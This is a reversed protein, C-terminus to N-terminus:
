FALFGIGLRFNVAQNFFVRTTASFQHGYNSGSYVDPAVAIAFRIGTDILIKNGYIRQRGLSFAVGGGATNIKNPNENLQVTTNVNHGSVYSSTNITVNKTDYRIANLLGFIDWKLYTGVPAIRGNAFLKYGIALGNENLYAPFQDSGKYHYQIDDYDHQSYNLGLHAYFYTLAIASRQGVIYNFELSQTANFTVDENPNQTGFFDCVDSEAPHFWISYAVSFRKGMYGPIQANASGAIVVILILIKNKM